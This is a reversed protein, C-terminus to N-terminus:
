HDSSSHSAASPQQQTDSVVGSANARGLQLSSSVSASLKELQPQVPFGLTGHKCLMACRSEGSATSAEASTEGRHAAHAALM